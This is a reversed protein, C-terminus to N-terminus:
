SFLNKLKTENEEDPVRMMIDYMYIKEYVIDGNIKDLYDHEVSVAVVKATTRELLQDYHGSLIDSASLFILNADGPPALESVSSIEQIRNELIYASRWLISYKMPLEKKETEFIYVM